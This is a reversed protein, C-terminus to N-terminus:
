LARYDTRAHYCPRSQCRACESHEFWAEARPENAGVERGQLNLFKRGSLNLRVSVM